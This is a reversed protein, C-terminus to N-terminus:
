SGSDSCARRAEILRDAPGVHAQEGSSGGIFFAAWRVGFQLSMGIDQSPAM